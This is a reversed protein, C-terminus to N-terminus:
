STTYYSGEKQNRAVQKDRSGDRYITIGKCGTEYVQWYADRVDQVHGENNFNITKSIANDVYKQFAAQMNIHQEPTIDGAVVFTRRLDEPLETWTRSPAATKSFATSAAGRQVLATV